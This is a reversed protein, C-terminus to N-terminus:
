AALRKSIKRYDELEDLPGLATLIPKRAFIRKASNEVDKNSVAMLRQLVREPPIVKGYALIQHGMVEARRMVSEKGMLIDARIQSKARALEGHSINKKVDNLEECVVPILERLRKPDTGAYIQFIGADSFGSHSSSITYVL